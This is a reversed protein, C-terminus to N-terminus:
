ISLNTFRLYANERLPFHQLLCGLWPLWRENTSAAAKMLCASIAPMVALHIRGSARETDKNLLISRAMLHLPM